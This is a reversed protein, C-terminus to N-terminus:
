KQGNDKEKEAPERGVSTPPPAIDEYSNWQWGTLSRINEVELWLKNANKVADKWFDKCAPVTHIVICKYEDSFRALYGYEADLAAIQLQIQAWYQLPIGCTQAEIKYTFGCAPRQITATQQWKGRFFTAEEVKYNVEGTKTTYKVEVPYYGGYAAPCVGDFNVTIFPLMSFKYMHAPKIIPDGLIQSAQDIIWPEMEVGKKVAEKGYISIPEVAESVKDSLLKNRSKYKNLSPTFVSAIDSAGISLKRLKGFTDGDIYQLINEVAVEIPLSDTNLETM